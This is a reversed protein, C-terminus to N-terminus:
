MMSTAQCFGKNGMDMLATCEEGAACPSEADTFCAHFCSQETGTDVCIGGAACDLTGECAEGIAVTGGLYCVDEDLPEMDPGVAGICASGDDCIRTADADCGAMCVPSMEAGRREFCRLGEACDASDSCAESIEGPDVCASLALVPILWFLRTM